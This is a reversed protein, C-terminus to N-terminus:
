GLNVVFDKLFANRIRRAYDKFEETWEEEEQVLVMGYRAASFFNNSNSIPFGDEESYSTLDVPM